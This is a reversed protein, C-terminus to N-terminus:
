YKEKHRFMGVKTVIPVTSALSVIASTLTSSILVRHETRVRTVLVSMLIQEFFICKLIFICNESQYQFRYESFGQYATVMYFSILKRHFTCVKTVSPETSDLSVVASTLNSSILVLHETRVRTVPVNM